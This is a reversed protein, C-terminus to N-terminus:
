KIKLTKRSEAYLDKIEKPKISLIKNIKIHKIKYKYVNRYQSVIHM